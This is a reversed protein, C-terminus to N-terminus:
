KKARIPKVKWYYNHIGRDYFLHRFTMEVPMGVEIERPTRDTVEFAGRGGGEFDVIAVTLPPDMAATLRDQTYSFVAGKKGAFSCDEFDDKAGCEICIREPMVSSSFMGAQTYQVTGCKKCKVGYLRLLIKENRHLNSISTPPLSPRSAEALPVLNRWKLYTSYNYIMAKTNLQKAFTGKNKVREIASTAQFLFVDAGNGYSAFLIKDGSKAEDLAAVLMMTGLATGTNGIVELFPSQLQEKTLGLTKALGAHRRADAPVDFVVKNLDQVTLGLRNLFAPIIETMVKSYGEDHVMRDEWLRVFNDEHSRWMGCFEDTFTYRDKVEAIVDGKGLLLAAGGDGISQELDSGPAGLRYDSATVLVNELSGASVADLAANIAITGSRLSNSFDAARIDRRLDLATAAIASTLKEKYPFTTSSCFIGDVRQRELGTLCDIGAAVAMTLSDEDFNAVTREGKVPSPLTLWTQHIEGRNMRYYPISVGYAKIGIM